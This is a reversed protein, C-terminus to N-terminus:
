EPLCVSDLFVAFEQEGETFHVEVDRWFLPLDIEGLRVADKATTVLAAAGAQRARAVLDSKDSASYPHHDAFVARGRVDLDALSDLFRAPRAVGCLAFVAGAPQGGRVSQWPGPRLAATVRPGEYYSDVWAPWRDLAVVVDAAGLAGTGERWLGAPLLPGPEEAPLLCINLFRELKLHQYGDDLLFLEYRPSLEVALAARDRAVWVDAPCTRALLVPEDGCVDPPCDKEVQRRGRYSGGYGRSLIATKTAAFHRALHAVLPTKGTGGALLSGVSIVPRDVRVTAPVGRAYGFRRASM